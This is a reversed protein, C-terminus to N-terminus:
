LHRRVKATADRSVSNVHEPRGSVARWTAPSFSAGLAVTAAPAASLAWKRVDEWDVDPFAAGGVGRLSLGRVEHRGSALWRSACWARWGVRVQHQLFDHRNRQPAVPTTLDLDVASSVHKWRWPAILTWGRELLWGHLAASPSGRLLSWPLPSIASRKALAGVLRTAWLCDLHVNAGFVLARVWPSSYRVRHAHKFLGTFLQKSLQLTPARAVWGYNAKSMAFVKATGLYQRLHMGVCSLLALTTRTAQGRKAEQETLARPTTYTSAGLAQVVKVVRDAPFCAKLDAVQKASAGAAWSKLTNEVLGARRSWQLWLDWVCALRRPCADVVTRDDVYVKTFSDPAARHAAAAASRRKVVQLGAQVWLSMILPGLPDGQPQGYGRLAQPRCHHKWQVFRLQHCWASRLMAVVGPPWRLHQLLRISVEADLTDFAKTFDLTLIHKKTAFQHMVESLTVCIDEGTIAGIDVTLNNSRWAKFDVSQYWASSFLRWWVSAISIPRVDVVGVSGQQNRKQAKPICVMRSQQLQLPVSGQDHWTKVLMEFVRFAEFPLHKIESSHWGDPGGAGKAKRALACLDKAVPLSLSAPLLPRDVGELVAASREEFSPRQSHLDRWFDHWFDAIADAAECVTETHRGHQDVLGEAPPTAKSRLWNGLEGVDSQVRHRWESLRRTKEQQEEKRLVEKLSSVQARAESLSLNGCRQRLCRLNRLTQEGAIDDAQKTLCSIYDCLRALRKRLKRHRM